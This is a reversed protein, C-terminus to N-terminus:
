GNSRWYDNIYLTKEYRGTPIQEPITGLGEYYKLEGDETAQAIECRVGRYRTWRSSFEKEACLVEFYSGDTQERDGIADKFVKESDKRFCEATYTASIREAIEYFYPHEILMSADEVTTDKTSRLWLTYTPTTYAKPIDSEFRLKLVMETYEDLQSVSEIEAPYLGDTEIEGYDPFSLGYPELIANVAEMEQDFAAKAEELSDYQVKPFSELSYQTVVFIILAAVILLSVLIRDMARVKMKM